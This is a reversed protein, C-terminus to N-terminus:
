ARLVEAPVNVSVLRRCDQTGGEGVREGQCSFGYLFRLFDVFFNQCGYFTHSITQAEPDDWVSDKCSRFSNLYLCLVPWFSFHSFITVAKICAVLIGIRFIHIM